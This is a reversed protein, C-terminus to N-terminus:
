PCLCRREPLDAPRGLDIFCGASWHGDYTGVGTVYRGVGDAANNQFYGEYRDGNPHTAIGYGERNGNRLV